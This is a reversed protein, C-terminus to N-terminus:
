FQNEFEKVKEVPRTAKAGSSRVVGCSHGLRDNRRGCRLLSGGGGELAVEAESVIPASGRAGCHMGRGNIRRGDENWLTFRWNVSAM